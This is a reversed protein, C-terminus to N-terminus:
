RGDEMKRELRVSLALLSERLRELSIDAGARPVIMYDRGGPLSRRSLRCAERCLRKVRNRRVAGGHKKSVAVGFRSPLAERERRTALLTLVGDTASKGQEFVRAIDARRKLRLEKGATNKM